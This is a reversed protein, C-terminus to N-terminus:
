GEKQEGFINALTEELDQISSFVADPLIERIRDRRTDRPGDMYIIPIEQTVRSTGIFRGVERGGSVYKRLSIVVADPMLERVRKCADSQQGSETAVSYGWKRIKAAFQECEEAEWHIFLINKM